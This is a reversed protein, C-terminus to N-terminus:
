KLKFSQLIAQVDPDDVDAKGITFTIFQDGQQAVLIHGPMEGEELYLHKYTFGGATVDDLVKAKGDEEAEKMGSELTEGETPRVEAIVFADKMVNEIGGKLLMIDTSEPDDNPMTEWGEPAGVSFLKKEYTTKVESAKAENKPAVQTSDAGSANNGSKNGCSAVLLAVAMMAITLVQKRM